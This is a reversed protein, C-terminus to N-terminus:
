PNADSSEAICKDLVTRPRQPIAQGSSPLVSRNNITLQGDGVAGHHPRGPTARRFVVGVAAEGDAPLRMQDGGAGVGRQGRGRRLHDAAAGARRVRVAARGVLATTIMGRGRAAPLAWCTAEATGMACTSPPWSSRASCRGPPRSASPGRTARTPAELAPRVARVDDGAAEQTAPLGNAGSPPDGSRRCSAVACGPPRRRPRRGAPRAPVLLRRQDRRPGHASRDTRSRASCPARPSRAAPRPPSAPSRHRGQARHGPEGDEDGRARRCTAPRSRTATPRGRGQHHHGADARHGRRRVGTAGGKGGGRKRPAAKATAAAAAAASRSTAPCRSRWGGGASRSSSPRGRRADEEAGTAARSRRRRHQGVRDRDVPHPRHLGRRRAAFAPDDVVLRHFPLVTAM